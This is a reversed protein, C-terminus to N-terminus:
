QNSEKKIKEVKEMAEEYNCARVTLGELPFNFELEANNETKKNKELDKKYM